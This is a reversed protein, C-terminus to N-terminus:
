LEPEDADTDKEVKLTRPYRRGAVVRSLPERDPFRSAQRQCIGDTSNRERESSDCSFIRWRIASRMMGKPLSETGRFGISPVVGKPSVTGATWGTTAGSERTPSADLEFMRGILQADERTVVAAPDIPVDDVEPPRTM